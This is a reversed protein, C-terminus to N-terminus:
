DKVQKVYKRPKPSKVLPQKEDVVVEVVEPEVKVVANKKEVYLEM